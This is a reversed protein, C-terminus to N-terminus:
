RAEKPLCSISTDTTGTSAVYCRDGNLTNKLEIVSVGYQHFYTVVTLSDNMPPTQSVVGVALLLIGIFFLAKM